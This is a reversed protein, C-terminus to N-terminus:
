RHAGATFISAAGAFARRLTGGQKKREFVTESAKIKITTANHAELGGRSVPEFAYHDGEQVTKGLIAPPKIGHRLWDFGIQTLDAETYVKAEPHRGFM